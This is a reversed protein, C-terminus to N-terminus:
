ALSIEAKSTYIREYAHAALGVTVLTLLSKEIHRKRQFTEKDKVPSSLTTPHQQVMCSSETKAVSNLLLQFDSNSMVGQYCFIQPSSCQMFIKNGIHHDSRVQQYMVLSSNCFIAVELDFYLEHWLYDSNWHVQKWLSFTFNLHKSNMITIVANSIPRGTAQSGVRSQKM